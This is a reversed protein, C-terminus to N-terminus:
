CKQYKNKETVWTMKFYKNKGQMWMGLSKGYSCRNNMYKLPNPSFSLWAFPIM